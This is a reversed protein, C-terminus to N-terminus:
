FCIGLRSESQSWALQLGDIKEWDLDKKTVIALRTRLRRGLAKWLRKWNGGWTRLAESRGCSGKEQHWEIDQNIQPKNNAIGICKGNPCHNWSNVLLGGWQGWDTTIVNITRRNWWFWWSWQNTVSSVSVFSVLCIWVSLHSYVCFILGFDVCILQNLCSSIFIVVWFHTKWFTWFTENWCKTPLFM